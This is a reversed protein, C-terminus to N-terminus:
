VRERCSARGIESVAKSIDTYTGTTAGKANVTHAVQGDAMARGPTLALALAALLALTAVALLRRATPATTRTRNM